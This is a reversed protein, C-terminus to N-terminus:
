AYDFAAQGTQDVPSLLATYRDLALQANMPHNNRLALLAACRHMQPFDDPQVVRGLQTNDSAAQCDYAPWVNTYKSGFVVLDTLGPDRFIQYSREKSNDVNGMYYVTGLSVESPVTAATGGQLKDTFMVKDGNTYFVKSRPVGGAIRNTSSDITAQGSDAREFFVPDAFSPNTTANWAQLERPRTHGLYALAHAIRNQLGCSISVQSVYEASPRWNEDGTRELCIYFALAILAEFWPAPPAFAGGNASWMGFVGAPIFTAEWALFKANHEILRKIYNAHIDSDPVIVMNALSMAGFALMRINNTARLTALGSWVTSPTGPYISVGGIRWSSPARGYNVHVGQVARIGLSLNADIFHREGSYLAAFYSYPVTHTNDLSPFWTMSGVTLRGATTSPLVYGGSIGITGAAGSGGSYAHISAPLGDATFDYYSAPTGADGREDILINPIFTNTPSRYHYPVHLGAFANLRMTRMNAATPVAFAIADMNTIMGRGPYGATGDIDGRHNQGTCPQYLGSSYTRGAGSGFVAGNYSAPMVYNKTLNIPPVMKSAVWYARDPKYLLTPQRGGRWHRTAHNSDDRLRVTMWQSHYPHEVYGIRTGGSNFAGTYTEITTAGDRLTAVYTLKEKGTVAWEDQSVVAGIERRVINGGANKWCSLYWTTKLHPHPTGGNSAYGWIKWSDCVMGSEYKEVRASVAALMNLSSIHDPFAGSDLGALSTFEVKFDTGALATALDLSSTNNFSGSEVVVSYTRTEGSGFDTDHFCATAFRLGNGTWQWSARNDFQAAIDTGGRQLKVRSGAPVDGDKFVLGIRQYGLSSTGAETNVIQFTTVEGSPAPPDPSSGRAFPPRAEAPILPLQSAIALLSATGLFRRRTMDSM